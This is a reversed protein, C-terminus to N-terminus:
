SSGFRLSWRSVDTWTRKWSVYWCATCTHCTHRGRPECDPRLSCQSRGGKQRMDRRGESPQPKASACLHWCTSARCYRDALFDFSIVHHPLVVVCCELTVYLLNFAITRDPGDRNDFIAANSHGETAGINRIRGDLWACAALRTKLRSM